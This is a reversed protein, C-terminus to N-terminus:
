SDRRASYSVTSCMNKDSEKKKFINKVVSRPKGFTLPVKDKDNSSSTSLAVSGAVGDRRKTQKPRAGPDTRRLVKKTDKTRDNGGIPESWPTKPLREPPSFLGRWLNDLRKIQRQRNVQYGTLREFDKKEEEFMEGLASELDTVRPVLDNHVARLGHYAFDYFEKKLDESCKCTEAVMAQVESYLEQLRESLKTLLDLKVSTKLQDQKVEPVELPSTVYTKLQENLHQLRLSMRRERAAQETDLIVSIEEADPSVAGERGRHEQQRADELEKNRARLKSNEKELEKIRASMKSGEEELSALQNKMEMMKKEFETTMSLTNDKILKDALNKLEIRTLADALKGATADKGKQRLWLVLLQICCERTFAGKEKEIAEITAEIFGLARALDKWKVGVSGPLKSAHIDRETMQHNKDLGMQISYDM